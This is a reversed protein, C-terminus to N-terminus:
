FGGTPVQQLAAVFGYSNGNAPPVVPPTTIPFNAVSGTVGGVYVSSLHNPDQPVALAITRGFDSGSGNLVLTPSALQLNSTFQSVQVNIAGNANTAGTVYVDNSSAGPQQGVALGVATYLGNAGPLIFQSTGNDYPDFRAIWMNAGGQVGNLAQGVLVESHDVVQGTLLDTALAPDIAIGTGYGLFGLPTIFATGLVTPNGNPGRPFSAMNAFWPRPQNVTMDLGTGFLYVNYNYTGDPQIGGANNKLVAISAIQLSTTPYASNWLATGDGSMTERVNPVVGGTTPNVGSAGTVGNKGLLHIVFPNWVGNNFWNTAFFAGGSYAAAGAAPYWSDQDAAVAAGQIPGPSNTVVSYNLIPAQNPNSTDFQMAVASQGNVAFASNKVMFEPASTTGIVYVVDSNTNDTAIGAGASPGSGGFFDAFQLQASNTTTNYKVVTLYLYAFGTPGPLAGTLYVKQVGNQDTGGISVGNVSSSGGAVGIYTSFVVPDIVLPQTPDYAGVQFHAVTGDLVFNGAVPHTVGDIQQYLTPKQQVMQGVGSDIVLNGQGDLQLQQAGQFNLAIQNANAGPAVVFDYELQGQNSHYVANIGNYVSQYTVSGYAAPLYSQGVDVSGPTGVFYQTNGVLPQTADAKANTNAGVLQVQLAAENNHFTVGQANLTAAYNQSQVVYQADPAAEGINALFQVPAATIAQNVAAKEPAALSSLGSPQPAVAPSTAAAPNAATTAAAGQGTLMAMTLTDSLGAAQQAAAFSPPATPPSAFAADNAVHETLGNSGSTAGSGSDAPLWGATSDNSDQHEPLLDGLPNDGLKFLPADPQETLPETLCTVANATTGSHVVPPQEANDGAIAIECTSCSTQQVAASANVTPPQPADAIMSNGAAGSVMGGLLASLVGEGPLLRNELSELWLRVFRHSDRLTKAPRLTSAPKM